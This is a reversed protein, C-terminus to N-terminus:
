LDLVARPIVHDVVTMAATVLIVRKFLKLLTCINNM